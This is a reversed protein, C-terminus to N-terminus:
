LRQLEQGLFEAISRMGRRSREFTSEAQSNYNTNINVDYVYTEGNEAEVYEIAAIEMGNSSLFREYAPIHPNTYDEIIRFKAKQVVPEALTVDDIALTDLGYRQTNSGAVADSAAFAPETPCFTDGVECTDAPCLEFGESTDVQVAYHFKGGIFEVRTIYPEKAKIYEQVLCIGDLSAISQGHELETQLSEVSSFLQVGLGKGGRNPKVIFPTQGLRRAAALINNKGSAAITRPTRIGQKQLAIYQEFKRVELQLARRNNVVRRGHAELWALIPGTLEVAFRHDRSHSSASMRNYFVGSPPPTSLDTMGEDIFWEEYPLGLEDLARYLPAVWESNEHIIYIKPLEQTIGSPISKYPSAGGGTEDNSSAIFGM